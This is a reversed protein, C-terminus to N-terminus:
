TIAILLRDEITMNAKAAPSVKVAQPLLPLLAAVECGGVVVAGGAAEVAGPACCKVTM